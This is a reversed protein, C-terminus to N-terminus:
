AVRLWSEYKFSGNVFKVMQLSFIFSLYTNIRLALKAQECTQLNGINHPKEHLTAQVIYCKRGNQGRWMQTWSLNYTKYEKIILFSSECKMPQVHELKDLNHVSLQSQIFTQTHSSFVRCCSYQQVTSHSSFVVWSFM